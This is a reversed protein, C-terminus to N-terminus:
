NSLVNFGFPYFFSHLQMTYTVLGLLIKGYVSTLLKASSFMLYVGYLAALHLYGLLAVNRWVIRMRYPKKEASDSKTAADAVEPEGASVAAATPLEGNSTKSQAEGGVFDADDEEYLVGTPANPAMVERPTTDPGLLAIVSCCVYCVKSYKAMIVMM